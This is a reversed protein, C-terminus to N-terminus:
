KKAGFLTHMAPLAVNFKQELTNLAAHFQGRASENLKEYETRADAAINSLAGKVEVVDDMIDLQLQTVGGAPTAVNEPLPPASPTGSVVVAVSATQSSGDAAVVKLTYNTSVTPSVTESGDVPVDGIVSLNASVGNTSSWKLTSHQGPNITSPDASITATPPALPTPSPAPTPLVPTPEPLPAPNPTVEPTSMAIPEGPSQTTLAIPSGHEQEIKELDTLAEREFENWKKHHKSM